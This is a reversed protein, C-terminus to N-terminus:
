EDAIKEKKMDYDQQIKEREKSAQLEQVEIEAKASEINRKHENEAWSRKNLL